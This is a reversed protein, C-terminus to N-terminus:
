SQILQYKIPLVGIFQLLMNWQKLEESKLVTQYLFAGPLQNIAIKDEVRELVFYKM